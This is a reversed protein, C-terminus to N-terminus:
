LFVLDAKRMISQLERGRIGFHLTVYFWVQQVLCKADKKTNFLFNIKNMDSEMIIDKHAIPSMECEMKLKKMGDFTDNARRFESDKYINFDRGLDNLHRQVGSRFGKYSNYQYTDGKHPRMGVYCECLVHCLDDKSCTKLDLTLSSKKMFTQLVSVWIKTSDKTSKPTRGAIVSDVDADTVFAFRKPAPEAM